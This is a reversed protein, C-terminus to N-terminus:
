KQKRVEFHVPDHYYKFNGGWRLGMEAAIQPVGTKMWTDKSDRKRIHGKYSLLNIDIARKFEHPSTGPKANKTNEKYLRKQHETNRHGSTIYVTYPTEKHVRKIFTEFTSQNPGLQKLKEQNHRHVSLKFSTISAFLIGTIVSLGLGIIKGNM